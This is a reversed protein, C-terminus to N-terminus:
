KPFEDWTRGDLLRGAAKKGVRQMLIGDGMSQLNPGLKARPLYGGGVIPVQAWEGWQKFFFPVGAAQCQDRLSRVWDPHVPRAGPGTEGGATVLFRDLRRGRYKSFDVFGLMPEASIWHMSAPIKLLKEVRWLYDNSEVTVGPWINTTIGHNFHWFESYWEAMRDVRKTLLLFTHWPCAKMANFIQELQSDNVWEHFLDGMFQVGIVAPKKMRALADLEERRLVPNAAGFYAQREELKITPNHALRNALRLHWCGSCAPSVRNCRMAIPNWTHTLYNIKTRNM